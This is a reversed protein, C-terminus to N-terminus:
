QFLEMYAVSPYPSETIRYRFKSGVIGGGLGEDRTVIANELVAIVYLRQGPYYIDEVVDGIRIEM